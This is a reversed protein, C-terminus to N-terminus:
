CVSHCNADCSILVSCNDCCDKDNCHVQDPIFPSTNIRFFCNLLDNYLKLFTATKLYNFTFAKLHAIAVFPVMNNELLSARAGFSRRKFRILMGPHRESMGGVPRSAKKNIIWPGCRRM